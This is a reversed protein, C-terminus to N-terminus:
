VTIIDINHHAAGTMFDKKVLPPDCFSGKSGPKPFLSRFLGFFYEKKCKKTLQVKKRFPGHM